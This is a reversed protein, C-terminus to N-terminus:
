RCALRISYGLGMVIVVAYNTPPCKRAPVRIAAKALVNHTIVTGFCNLYLALLIERRWASAFSPVWMSRASESKM